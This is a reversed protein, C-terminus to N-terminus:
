CSTAGGFTVSAVTCRQEVSVEQPGINNNPPKSNSKHPTIRTYEPSM